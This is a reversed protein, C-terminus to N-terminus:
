VPLEIEFCAGAGPSSRLSIRGGHGEVMEKVLYLGLGLGHDSAGARARGFREFVQQQDAEAIGPGDDCICLRAAAGGMLTIKVTADPAYRACNSLLNSVVQELRMPDWQGRVSRDLRLSLTCGARELTPRYTEVVQEVLRCLDVDERRFELRGSQIRSVDLLDDILAALRKSQQVGKSLAPRVAALVEEPLDLRALRREGMQLQLSLSTLPTRLEHSAISLFRDRTEVAEQLAEATRRHETVDRLTIIAFLLEGNRDYVPAGGFSGIWREGSDIRRLELELDTFTEGRLVRALPWDNEALPLGQEWLELYASHGSREAPLDDPPVGFMRRAASNRALRTGDADFIVLGETMHEIIAELQARTRVLEDVDTASGVWKIASSTSPVPMTRAVFWRYRGDRGRLRYEMEASRGEAMAAAVEAEIAAVDEPHVVHQWGLERTRELDLGTYDVWRRNVFEIGQEGDRLWVMNPLSDAVQQLREQREDREAQARKLATIDTCAGTLHPGRGDEAPYCRSHDHIWRVSGDAQRVRFVQEIDGGTAMGQQLRSGVEAQDDPHVMALFDAANRPAQEPAVGWVKHMNEGWHVEDSDADWRFTGTHSARLAAQLFEDQERLRANAAELQATRERVRAELEANLQERERAALERETVDRAVFFAGTNSAERPLPGYHYEFCHVAGAEDVIERVLTFEEGALARAWLLRSAERLEPRHAMQALADDGLRLEVGLLRRAQEQATSNFMLLRYDHDVAVSLDRSRDVMLRLLEYAAASSDGARTQLNASTTM